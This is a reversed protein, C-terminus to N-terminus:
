CSISRQERFHTHCSLVDIHIVLVAFSLGFCATKNLFLPTNQAEPRAILEEKGAVKSRRAYSNM